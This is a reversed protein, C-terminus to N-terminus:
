VPALRYRRVEDVLKLAPPANNQEFLELLYNCLGQLSEVVREGDTAGSREKAQELAAHAAELLGETWPRVFVAQWTMRRTTSWRKKLM